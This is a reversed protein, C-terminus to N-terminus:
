VANLERLVSVYITYVKNSHKKSSAKFFAKTQQSCEFLYTTYKFVDLKKATTEERDHFM